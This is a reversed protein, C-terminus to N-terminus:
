SNLRVAVNRERAAGELLSLARRLSKPPRLTATSSGAVAGGGKAGAAPTVLDSHFANAGLSLSRLKSDAPM